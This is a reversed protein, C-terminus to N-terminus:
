SLVGEPVILKIQTGVAEGFEVADTVSGVCASEDASWIRSGDQSLVKVRLRMTENELEAFVGVPTHCSGSLCRLVGREAEVCMVTTSCSFENMFSLREMDSERIEIGIAGQGVSPLMTDFGMVSTIHKKMNLRALGACALFTADVQGARMKDIRTQVNGRLPVIKLDPRINLAFAKRRPSVTGVVAGEPLEVLNSAKESLFADRVDARPLMFPVVLGEPLDVEMDKMSHVALDIDGSLLFNEIETAFCAKNSLIVEGSEPVWDGATKIIKIESKQGILALKFVVKEAQWLALPSGRTGIILAESKVPM